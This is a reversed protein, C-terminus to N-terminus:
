YKEEKSCTILGYIIFLNMLIILINLIPFLGRNQMYNWLVFFPISPLYFILFGISIWFILNRKYNLIKDSILLSKLFSFAYIAISLSEVVITYRYLSKNNLVFFWSILFVFFLIIFGKKSFKNMKSNRYILTILLFEFFTFIYYYLFSSTGNEVHYFGIFEVLVTLFFLVALKEVTNKYHNKKLYLFSIIMALIQSFLSLYSIM